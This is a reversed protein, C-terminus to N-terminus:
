IISNYFYTLVKYLLVLPTLELTCLYLSFFLFGTNRNFFINFFRYILIIRSAIYSIILIILAIYLFQGTLLLLLTPLYLIIGWVNFLSQLSTQMMKYKSKELFIIGVLAIYLQNYAYYIAYILMLVLVHRVSTMISDIAILGGVSAIIFTVVASLLLSQFLMFANFIFSEREVTEFISQRDRGAIINGTMKGFLAANLRFILAFLALIIIVTLIWFDNLHRDM